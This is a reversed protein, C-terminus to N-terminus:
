HFHYKSHKVASIEYIFAAIPIKKELDYKNEKKCLFIFFFFCIELGNVTLRSSRYHVFPSFCHFAIIEKGILLVLNGAYSYSPFLLFFSSIRSNNIKTWPCSASIIWFVKNEIRRIFTSSFIFFIAM